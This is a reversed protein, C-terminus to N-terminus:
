IAAPSGDSLSAAAADRSGDASRKRCSVVLAVLTVTLGIAFRVYGSRPKMEPRRLGGGSRASARLARASAHHVRRSRSQPGRGANRPRDDGRGKAGDTREGSKANTRAGGRPSADGPGRQSSVRRQPLERPALPGRSRTVGTTQRRRSLPVFGPS